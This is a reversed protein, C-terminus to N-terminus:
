TQPYTFWIIDNHKCYNSRSQFIECVGIKFILTNWVQMEKRQSNLRAAQMLWTSRQLLMAVVVPFNSRTSLKYFLLATFLKM